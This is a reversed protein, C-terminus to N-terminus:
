NQRPKTIGDHIFYYVITGDDNIMAITIRDVRGKGNIYKLSEWKTAVGENEVTNSVDNTINNANDKISNNDLKENRIKDTINNVNNQENDNMDFKKIEEFWNNIEQVTLKTNTLNKCVIWERKNQSDTSALKSAPLGSVIHDNHIIVQTWLNYHLLNLKVQDTNSSTFQNTM